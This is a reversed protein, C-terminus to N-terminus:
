PSLRAVSVRAVGQGVFGLHRAAGLSVDIIRGRIFPGRDTVRVDVSRGNGLNTVRVRTGFPYTRHAATMANQDFREGNAKRRGHFGPGYFSAMGTAAGGAPQAPPRAPTSPAAPRAAAATREPAPLPMPVPATAPAPQIPTPAAVAPAAREVPTFDPSILSPEDARAPAALVLGALAIAIGRTM